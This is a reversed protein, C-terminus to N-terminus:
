CRNRSELLYKRDVIPKNKVIEFGTTERVLDSLEQLKSIDVIDIGMLIQLAVAVEETSCHGTREGIGNVCGHVVEAGSMVATISNALALGFDNHTHIELPINMISKILKILYQTAGPLACGMTDVVGVSDPLSNEKIQSLLKTIDDEDARTTDYPFYVTYLGLEKAKKIAFVRSEVVRDM